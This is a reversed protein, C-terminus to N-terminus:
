MKINYQMPTSDLSLLLFIKGGTKFVLVTEGFPLGEEVDPFQLVFERLAEAHM